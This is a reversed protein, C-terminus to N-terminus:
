KTNEHISLEESYFHKKQGRKPEIINIQPLQTKVTLLYRYPTSGLASIVLMVTLLEIFEKLGSESGVVACLCGEDFDGVVDEDSSVGAVDADEDEEVERSGEVSDGMGDEEVAEGFVEAKSACSEGPEM